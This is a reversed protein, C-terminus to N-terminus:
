KSVKLQTSLTSMQLQEVHGLVRRDESIFHAHFFTDHHTFISKHHRSFFGILTGKIDKYHFSVLGQHAQDPSSVTTGEPLNVSHVTLQSFLGDIRVLLPYDYTSYMSDIQHELSKFDIAGSALPVPVLESSTTYVFFPAQSAAVDSVEHSLSDIVKSEFTKGEVVLLEGKLYASPGLGYSTPSNISDTSIKGDLEGQWMVESMKGVVKITSTQTPKGCSIICAATLLFLLYKLM